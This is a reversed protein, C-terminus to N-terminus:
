DRRTRTAGGTGGGNQDSAQDGAQGGAQNRAQLPNVVRLFPFRHFDTDATRIEVVGHERMLAATHADHLINGRLAPHDRLLQALIEGHRETPLLYSFGPGSTVTRLFRWADDVSLPQEFVSPHTSVRLFEYVINWSLHWPLPDARWRQLLGFANRHDPFQKASAYLLINTDVVFM